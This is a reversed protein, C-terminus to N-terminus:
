LISPCRYRIDSRAALFVLTLSMSGQTLRHRSVMGPPCADGQICFTGCIYQDTPSARTQNTSLMIRQYCMCSICGVLKKLKM